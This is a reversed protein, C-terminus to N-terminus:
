IRVKHLNNEHVTYLNKGALAAPKDEEDFDLVEQWTCWGRIICSAAKVNVYVLFFYDAERLRGKPVVLRSAGTRETAKVEVRQGRVLLDYNRGGKGDTRYTIEDPPATLYISVAMEAMVGVLHTHYSKGEDSQINPNKVGHGHIKEYQNRHQAVNECFAVHYENLEILGM